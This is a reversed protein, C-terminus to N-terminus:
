SIGDHKVILAHFILFIGILFISAILIAGTLSNPTGLSIDMAAIINGFVGGLLILIVGLM